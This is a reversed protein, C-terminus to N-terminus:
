AKQAARRLFTPVDLDDSTAATNEQHITENIMPHPPQDL